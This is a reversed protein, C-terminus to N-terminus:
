LSSLSGILSRLSPLMKSVAPPLIECSTMDAVYSSRREHFGVLVGGKKVVLRATLRARHRYGWTSGYIAPLVTEPRLRAIHWLADELVRQKTAAQAAADLHQMSCGGCIGFYRCRPQTRWTSARRISSLTALEYGPKRRFSTFEVRELPLAGEVFIAKENVHTVGRGEQDLSEIVATPM